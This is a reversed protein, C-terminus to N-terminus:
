KPKWDPRLAGLIESVHSLFDDIAKVKEEASRKDAPTQQDVPHGRAVQRHKEIEALAEERSNLSALRLALLYYAVQDMADLRGKLSWIASNDGDIRAQHEDARKLLADLSSFVPNVTKEPVSGRRLSLGELFEEFALRVEETLRESEAASSPDVGMSNLGAMMTQVYSTLWDRPTPQAQARDLIEQLAVTELVNVRGQLRWISAQMESITREIRSLRENDLASLERDTCAVHGACM